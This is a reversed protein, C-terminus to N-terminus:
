RAVAIIMSRLLEEHNRNDDLICFKIFNEAIVPPQGELLSPNLRVAELCYEQGLATDDQLLRLFQGVLIDHSSM